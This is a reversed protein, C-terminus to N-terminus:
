IIVFDSADVAGGVVTLQAFLVKSGAGSGDADYYVNGTSTDYLIFDNADQANGGANAAFNAANLAGTATLSSFLGAGTNELHIKDANSADFDLIADVNSAANLATNFIFTDNQAGGLLQDNGGGGNIIDQNQGGVLADDGNGGNITDVGNLGFSVDSNNSVIFQFQTASGDQGSTGVSVNFTEQYTNGGGDTATVIFSYTTGAAL